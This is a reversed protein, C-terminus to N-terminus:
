HNEVIALKPISVFSSPNQESNIAVNFIFYSDNSSVMIQFFDISRIFRLKGNPLREPSDVTERNQHIPIEWLLNM